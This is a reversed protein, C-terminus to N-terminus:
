EQKLFNLKQLVQTLLSSRKNNGNLSRKRHSISNGTADVFDVSICSLIYKYVDEIQCRAKGSITYIDFIGKSMLASIKLDHEQHNVLTLAPWTKLKYVRQNEKEGADDIEIEHALHWYFIFADFKTSVCDDPIDNLSYTSAEFDVSKLISIYENISLNKPKLFEVTYDMNNAIFVIDESFKVLVRNHLRIRGFFSLLEDFSNATKKPLSSRKNKLFTYIDSFVSMIELAGGEPSVHWPYNVQPKGYTITTKDSLGELQNDSDPDDISVIIVDAEKTSSLVWDVGRHKNFMKM